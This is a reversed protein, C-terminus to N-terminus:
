YCGLLKFDKTYSRLKEIANKVQEDSINGEFEIFFSYEGPSNKKPRSEIKTMNLGLDAIIHLMKLLAGPEHPCSAAFYVRECNNLLSEAGRKILLFHTFNKKEDAINEESISYGKKQMHSGVIGADFDDELKLISQATSETYFIQADPMNEAIFKGCQLIAQEHSFIRKIKNLPVGKKTILRHDIKLVYEKVAYIDPNSYLLDLNQVVAGQLTNEIPLVACDVEKSLLSAVVAYFGHKPVCECDPCLNKAALSSYSGEPGLYAVKM